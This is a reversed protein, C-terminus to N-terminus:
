PSTQKLDMVWIQLAQVIVTLMCALMNFTRSMRQFIMVEDGLTLELITLLLVLGEQYRVM